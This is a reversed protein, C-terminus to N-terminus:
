SEKSLRNYENSVLFFWIMLLIYGIIIFIGTINSLFLQSFLDCAMLLIFFSSFGIISTLKGSKNSFFMLVSFILGATLLGTRGGTHTIYLLIIGFFPSIVAWISFITRILNKNRLNYFFAISIFGFLIMIVFDIWHLSSLLDRQVIGFNLKLFLIIWNDDFITLWNNILNPKLISLLTSIISLFLLVFMIASVISVSKYFRQLGITNNRNNQITAM